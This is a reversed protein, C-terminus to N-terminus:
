SFERAWIELKEKCAQSPLQPNLRMLFLLADHTDTPSLIDSLLMQDFMWLIGQVEIQHNECWIRMSKDGSLVIPTGPLLQVCWLVSKDADSLRRPYDSESLSITQSDSLDCVVLHNQERLISLGTVQEKNLEDLVYNTTYIELDLSLLYPLWGLYYLDIFINADIIAIRM